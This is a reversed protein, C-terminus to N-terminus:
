KTTNKLKAYIKLKEAFEDVIFDAGGKPFVCNAKILVSLSSMFSANRIKELYLLQTTTLQPKYCLIFNAIETQINEFDFYFTQCLKNNRGYIPLLNNTNWDASKLLKKCGDIDSIDPSNIATAAPFGVMMNTLMIGIDGIKENIIPQLRKKEFYVPLVITLLYVVIGAIYSYSLNIIIENIEVYNEAIGISWFCGLKINAIAYLCLLTLIVLCGNIVRIM